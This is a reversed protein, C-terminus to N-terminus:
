ALLFTFTINKGFSFTLNFEVSPLFSESNLRFYKRYDCRDQVKLELM